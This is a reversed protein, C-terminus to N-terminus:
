NYYIFLPTTGKAADVGAVRLTFTEFHAEFTENVTLSAVFRFFGPEQPLTNDTDQIDTHTTAPLSATSRKRIHQM